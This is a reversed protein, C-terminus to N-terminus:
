SQGGERDNDLDHPHSPVIATGANASFNAAGQATGQMPGGQYTGQWPAGPFIPYGDRALAAREALQLLGLTILLLPWFLRWFYPITGM